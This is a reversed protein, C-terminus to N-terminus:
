MLTQAVCKEKTQAQNWEHLTSILRGNCRSTASCSNTIFHFDGEEKILCKSNIGIPFFYQKLKHIICQPLTHLLHQSPWVTPGLISVFRAPFSSSVPDQVRNVIPQLWRTGCQKGIPQIQTLTFRTYPLWNTPAVVVLAWGAQRPTLHVTTTHVRSSSPFQFKVTSEKKQRWRPENQNVITARVHEFIHLFAKFKEKKKM